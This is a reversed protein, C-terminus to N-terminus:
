QFEMHHYTLVEFTDKIEAEVNGLAAALAKKQRRDLKEEFREKEAANEISYAEEVSESESEDDSAFLEAEQRRM